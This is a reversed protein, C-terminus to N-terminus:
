ARGAYICVYVYVDIEREEKLVMLEVLVELELNSYRLVWELKKEQGRKYSRERVSIFNTKMIKSISGAAGKADVKCIRSARAVQRSSFFGIFWLLSVM